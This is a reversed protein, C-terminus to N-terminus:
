PSGFDGVLASQGIQCALNTLGWALNEILKSGLDGFEFVDLDARTLTATLASTGVVL